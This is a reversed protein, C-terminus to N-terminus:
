GELPLKQCAGKQLFKKEEGAKLCLSKKGEIDTIRPHIKLLQTPLFYDM